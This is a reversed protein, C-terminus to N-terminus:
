IRTDHFFQLSFYLFSRYTNQPLNVAQSCFTMQDFTPSLHETFKILLHLVIASSTTM